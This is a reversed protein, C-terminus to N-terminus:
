ICHLGRILINPPYTTPVFFFHDMGEPVNSGLPKIGTPIIFFVLYRYLSFSFPFPFLSLLPILISSKTEIERGDEARGTVKGAKEAQLESLRLLGGAFKPLGMTCHFGSLRVIYYKFGLLSFSVVFPSSFGVSLHYNLFFFFPSSFFLQFASAM